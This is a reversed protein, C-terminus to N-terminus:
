NTQWYPNRSEVNTKNRRQYIRMLQKKIQTYRQKLKAIDYAIEGYQAKDCRNLQNELIAIKFQIDQCEIKLDRIKDEM